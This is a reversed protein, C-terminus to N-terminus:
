IRRFLSISKFNFSRHRLMFLLSGLLAVAIIAPHIICHLFAALLSNKYHNRTIYLVRAIKASYLFTPLCWLWWYSSSFLIALWSLFIVYHQFEWMVHYSSIFIKEILGKRARVAKMQAPLHQIAGITWRVRQLFLGRLTEREMEYALVQPLVAVRGNNALVEYTATLDELFGDVLLKKYAEFEVIQVGGPFNAVNHLNKVSQIVSQRYLRNTCIIQRTLSHVEGIKQYPFILCSSFPKGESNHFKVLTEIATPELIIDSDLLLVTSTTVSKGGELLAQVKGHIVEPLCIVEFEVSNEAFRQKFLYPIEKTRLECRDLVVVVKEIISTRNQLISELCLKISLEEGHVPIIISIGSLQETSESKQKPIDPAKIRIRFSEVLYFIQYFAILAVLALLIYEPITM